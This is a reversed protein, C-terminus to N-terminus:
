KIAKLQSYTEMRMPMKGAAGEQVAVGDAVGIELDIVMKLERPQGIAEDFLMEGTLENSTVKLNGDDEEVTGAILVKALQYGDKEVMGDFTMTYNISVPEATMGGLPFKSSTEWSEGEAVVQNAMLDSLERASQKLEDEGMGMSEMGPVTDATISVVEGKPDLTMMTKANMMPQISAAMPGEPNESDFQMKMGAADMDMVMSEMKQVVQVGEAVKTVRQSGVVKMTMTTELQQGAMPMVMNQKVETDTLYEKGPEFQLQFRVGEKEASEAEAVEEAQKCSSFALAVLGAAYLLRLKM